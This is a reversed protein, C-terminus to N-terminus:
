TIKFILNYLSYEYNLCLNNHINKNFSIKVQSDQSNIIFDEIKM